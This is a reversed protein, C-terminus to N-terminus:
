KQNIEVLVPDTEKNLIRPIGDEDAVVAAEAM